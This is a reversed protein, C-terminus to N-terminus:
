VRHLSMPEITAVVHFFHATSWKMRDWSMSYWIYSILIHKIDLSMKLDHFHRDTDKLFIRSWLLISYTMFQCVCQGAHRRYPAFRDRLAWSFDFMLFSGFMNAKTVSESNRCGWDICWLKSFDICFLCNDCGHAWYIRWLGSQNISSLCWFTISLIKSVAIRIGGSASSM